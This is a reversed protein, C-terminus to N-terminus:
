SRRWRRAARRRCAALAAAAGARRRRRAGPARGRHRDRRRHAAGAPSRALLEGTAASVRWRVETVDPSQQLAAAYSTPSARAAQRADDGEVLVLLTQEAVFARSFRAFAQAEVSRQPFLDVVDSDIRLRLLLPVLALTALLAVVLVRGPRSTLLTRGARLLCSPMMRRTAGRTSPKGDHVLSKGNARDAGGVVSGDSGDDARHHGLEAGAPGAEGDVIGLDVVHAGGVRPRAGGEEDDGVAIAHEAAAAHRRELVAVGRTHSSRM